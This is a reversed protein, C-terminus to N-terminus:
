ATTIHAPLCDTGESAQVRDCALRCALWADPLRGPVFREAAEPRRVWGAASWFRGDAGVIVFCRGAMIPPAEQTKQGKSEAATPRASKKKKSSM